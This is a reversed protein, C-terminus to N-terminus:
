SGGEQMFSAAREDPAIEGEPGGDPRGRDPCTTPAEEAGPGPRDTSGGPRRSRARDELCRGIRRVDEESFLRRGPVQLSPGPLDGRDILYALRWRPIGLRAAVPGITHLDNTAMPM